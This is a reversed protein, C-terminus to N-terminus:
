HLYKVYYFHDWVYCPELVEEKREDAQTDCQQGNKSEKAMLVTELLVEWSQSKPAYILPNFCGKLILGLIEHLRRSESMVGMWLLIQM